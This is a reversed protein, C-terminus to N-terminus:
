REFVMVLVGVALLLSGMVGSEHEEFWRLRLNRIGALTLWTFFIMGAVTAVSLILTLLAFGSWGFRIGTVYIPLFGECPSLTLLAFLSAIAMRDSTRTQSIEPGRLHTVADKLTHDHHHHEHSGFAHTHSHTKGSLQRWFFFLGLVILLGGAIRPFWAGVRASVVVGFITLLLGLLATTLVHGTGALATVALTKGHSWGQARGAAVFPLWHTPIAAHLFAVTFGTFAISTLITENM